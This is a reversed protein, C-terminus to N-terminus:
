AVGQKGLSLCLYSLQGLHYVEHWHMFRMGGDITDSGDPFSRGFPEAARTADVERVLEDLRKGSVLFDRYLREPKPTGEPIDGAAGRGFAGEWAEVPADEGLVRRLGRRALTIHGLLWHACNGGQERRWQWEDGELSEYLMGLSANNWLFRPGLDATPQDM